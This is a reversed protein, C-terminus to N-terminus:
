SGSPPNTTSDVSAGGVTSAAPEASAASEATPAGESGANARAEALETELKRAEDDRTRLAGSLRERADSDLEAGSDWARFVAYGLAEAAKDALERARYSDIRLKGEDFVDQAAKGAKDIGQKVKDWIAM